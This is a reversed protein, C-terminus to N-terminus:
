PPTKREVIRKRMMQVHRLSVNERQAITHLDAGSAVAEAIRQDRRERESGLRKPLYLKVAEGPFYPALLARAADMAARQEDTMETARRKRPKM